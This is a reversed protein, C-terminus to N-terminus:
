AAPRRLPQGRRVPGRAARRAARGPGRGPAPRERAHAAILEELERLGMEDLMRRSLLLRQTSLRMDAPGPGPPPRRWRRRWARGPREGAADRRAAPRDRRRRGAPGRRKAPERRRQAAARRNGQVRRPHLLRRLLEDFRDVEDESKALTICLADKLLERDAYGVEMLARHADIAEAPSVRHGVRAPGSSNRWRRAADACRPRRGREPRPPRPLDARRDEARRRRHGARVEPAREPDRAGSRRELADAHLLM